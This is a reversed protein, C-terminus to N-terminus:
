DTVRSFCASGRGPSVDAGGVSNEEAVGATTEVAKSVARSSATMEETAAANQQVIRDIQDIAAVMENSLEKLQQAATSIQQIQNGVKQSRAMIDDMAAGADAALMYGAEVEKSGQRMAGVAEGVGGQIGGVLSGIEKTAMSSREALKRVEEAVVAFGRGQEGARAAEIAANLALLNTQAAIDDITAVIKGIEDSREGLDMVKMSVLDIAEKIQGMGEATKHTKRAGDAASAATTQWEEDGAKANTSVEAIATSVKKVIDGAEEVGKAQEQAGGAIQSTASSLTQVSDATQQLLASQDAAGRAVQQITTTIQQTVQATQESAMTLQKSADAVGLATTKVRGLLQRQNAVMQTFSQSLVDKESRPQIEVTLDGGAIRKTVGAMEKMYAIVSTYAKALDGVEDNSKVAIEQDLDGKALAESTNVMSTLPRVIVRRVVITFVILILVATGGSLAGLTWKNIGSLSLIDDRSIGTALAWEWPQFSKVYAMGSTTQDPDYEGGWAYKYFGEGESRCINVMDLFLPRGSTDTLGGVETGVLEPRYRDALMVPQYDTVWFHGADDEGYSLGNIAALASGQADSRTILGANELGYYYQLVGYATQVEERAKTEREHLLRSHMLPLAIVCAYVNLMTLAVFVFIALKWTVSLRLRKRSFEQIKEKMRKEL